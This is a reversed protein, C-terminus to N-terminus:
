IRTESTEIPVDKYDLKSFCLHDLKSFSSGDIRGNDEKLKKYSGKEIDETNEYDCEDNEPYICFHQITFIIDFFISFASIAYKVINLLFFNDAQILIGCHLLTDIYNQSFSFIGGTMDCLVNFISWGKTSQRRINLVVQPIYKILTIFAKAFGLYIITNFSFNTGKHDYPDYLQLGRELILMVIFGLSLLSVITIAKLSFKQNNDNPDYYKCSLYVIYFTCLMSHVSFFVDQITVGNVGIDPDLFGWITYITYSIFGFVNYLQFDFSIGSASEYKYIEYIIGYWAITWVSFYFWGIIDSFVCGGSYPIENFETIPNLVTKKDAIPISQKSKLFSFNELEDLNQNQILNSSGNINDNEFQHIKINFNPIPINNHISTQVFNTQSISSTLDLM